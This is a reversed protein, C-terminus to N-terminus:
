TGGTLQPGRTRLSRGSEARRCVLSHVALSPQGAKKTWLREKRSRIMGRGAGRRAYDDKAGWQGALPRAGTSPRVGSRDAEVGAWRDSANM